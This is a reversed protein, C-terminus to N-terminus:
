KAKCRLQVANRFLLYQMQSKFRRSRAFQHLFFQLEEETTVTLKGKEVFTQADIDLTGDPLLVVSFCSHNVDTHDNQYHIEFHFLNQNLVDQYFSGWALEGMQASLQNAFQTIIGLLGDTPETPCVYQPWTARFMNTEIQTNKNM